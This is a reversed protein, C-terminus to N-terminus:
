HPIPVANGNEEHVLATMFHVLQTRSFAMLDGDILRSVEHRDIGLIGVGM